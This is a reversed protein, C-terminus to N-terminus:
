LRGRCAIQVTYRFNVQRTTAAIDHQAEYFHVLFLLGLEASTTGLPTDLALRATPRYIQPKPDVGGPRTNEPRTPQTLEQANSGARQRIQSLPM